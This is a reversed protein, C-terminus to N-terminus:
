YPSIARSRLPVCIRPCEGRAAVEACDRLIFDIYSELFSDCAIPDVPHSPKTYGLTTKAMSISSVATSPSTSCASVFIALFVAGVILQTVQYDPLKM